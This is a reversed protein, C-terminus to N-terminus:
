VEAFEPSRLLRRDFTVVREAGAALSREWILWDALDGDGAAFRELATRVQDVDEFALQRARLLTGLGAAIETRDKEYAYGLVWVLECVVIQPVFLREGEATARAFLNAARAAQGPDDGVLFRVLVNTDVGTM